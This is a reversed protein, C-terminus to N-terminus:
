QPKRGKRRKAKKKGREIVFLRDRWVKARAWDALVKAFWNATGDSGLDKFVLVKSCTNLFECWRREATVGKGWYENNPESLVFEIGELAEFAVKDAKRAIWVTDAPASRVTERVLDIDPFTQDCILAVVENDFQDYGEPTLPTRWGTM